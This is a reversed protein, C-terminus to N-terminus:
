PHIMAFLAFSIANSCKIKKGCSSTASMTKFHQVMDNKKDRNEGRKREEKFGITAITSKEYSPSLLDLHLFSGALKQNQDREQLRGPCQCIQHIDKGLAPQDSHSRFMHDGDQSRGFHRKPLDGERIDGQKRLSCKLKQPEPGLRGDM